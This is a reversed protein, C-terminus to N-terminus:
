AVARATRRVAPGLARTSLVTLESCVPAPPFSASAKPATWSSRTRHDERGLARPRPAVGARPRAARRRQRPRLRRRARGRSSAHRALSVALNIVVNTKGVGGKGSTIALSVMGPAPASAAPRTDAVSMRSGRPRAKSYVTASCTRPSTEGADRARPRRARAPRHRSVLGELRARAPRADAAVGLRSRRRPDAGRPEPAQRRLRRARQAPRPRQRRGADGPAHARGAPGVLM